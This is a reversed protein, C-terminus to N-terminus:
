SWAVLFTNGADGYSASVKSAKCDQASGNVGKIGAKFFSFVFKIKLFIELRCFLQLVVVTPVAENGRSCTFTSPKAIAEAGDQGISLGPQRGRSTTDPHLLRHPVNLILGTGAQLVAGPSHYQTSRKSLHKQGRVTMCGIHRDAKGALIYGM